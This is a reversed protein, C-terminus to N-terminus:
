TCPPATCTTQGLWVFYAPRATELLVCRLSTGDRGTGVVTANLETGIIMTGGDPSGWTGLQTQLDHLTDLSSQDSNQGPLPSNLYYNNGVEGRNAMSDQYDYYEYYPANSSPYTTCSAWNSYVAYKFGSNGGNTTKTRICVVHNNATSPAALDAYWQAEAAEGAKGEDTTHLIYPVAKEMGAVNITVLRHSEPSNKNYVYTYISERNALDPYTIRWAGSGGTALDCMLGFFDVASCMQNRPINQTLTPLAVYLPVRISEDYVAGGKDRMSHSGGYEGHDATFVIITNSNLSHQTLANLVKGVQVDVLFQLYYYYNLLTVFDTPYTLPNGSNFVKDLGNILLQQLPPKYNGSGPAVSEYNWPSPIASYLPNPPTGPPNFYADTSYGPKGAAQCGGPYQTLWYPFFAIDHPNIFSVTACWPGSPNTNLWGEFDQEIMADSALTEGTWRNPPTSACSFLEGNSGENAVGDPSPYTASPSTRTQFGYPALSGGFEASLHWKGFWWVNGSYASNLDKIANGWTPYRQDLAPPNVQSTVYMATQPAYLGTM